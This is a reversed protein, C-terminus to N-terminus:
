QLPPRRGGLADSSRTRLAGSCYHEHAFAQLTQVDNILVKGHIEDSRARCFPLVEQSILRNMASEFCECNRSWIVACYPTRNVFISNHAPSGRERRTPLVSPLSATDQRCIRERIERRAGTAATESRRVFCLTCHLPPRRGGFARSSRRESLAAVTRWLRLM